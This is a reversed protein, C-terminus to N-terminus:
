EIPPKHRQCQNITNILVSSIPERPSEASIAEELDGELTAHHMLNPHLFPLYFSDQLIGPSRM